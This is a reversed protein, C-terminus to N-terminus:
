MLDIPNRIYAAAANLRNAPTANIAAGARAVVPLDAVTV